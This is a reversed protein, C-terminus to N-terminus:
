VAFFHRPDSSNSDNFGCIESCSRTVSHYTDYGVDEGDPLGPSNSLHCSEPWSPSVSSSCHFGDCSLTMSTGHLPAYIGRSTTWADHRLGIRSPRSKSTLALSSANSQNYCEGEPPSRCRDDGDVVYEPSCGGSIDLEDITAHSAMIRPSLQRFFSAYTTYQRSRARRRTRSQCYQVGPM